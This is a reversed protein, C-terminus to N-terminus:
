GWFEHMQRAIKKALPTGKEIQLTCVDRNARLEASAAQIWPGEFSRETSSFYREILAVVRPHLKGVILYEGILEFYLNDQGHFPSEAFSIIERPNNRSQRQAYEQDLAGQHGLITKPEYNGTLMGQNFTQSRMSQLLIFWPHPLWNFFIQRPSEKLACFILEVWFDNLMALNRFTWRAKVKGEPLFASLTSQGLYTDFMRDSFQSFNLIWPLSLTYARQYKIVVSDRLLVRLEKYLGQKTVLAGRGGLRRLLEPATQLPSAALIHLIKERLSRPHPLLM